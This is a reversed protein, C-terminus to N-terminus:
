VRRRKYLQLVGHELARVIAEEDEESLRFKHGSLFLLIHCLEHFLTREMDDKSQELSVYIRKETLYAVGFADRFEKPMQRCYIIVVEFGFLEVKSPFGPPKKGRKISPHRAM